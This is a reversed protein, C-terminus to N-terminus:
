FLISNIIFFKHANLLHKVTIKTQSKEVVVINKNEDLMGIDMDAYEPIFRDIPDDLSVLGKEIQRLIATATIPKTMSALRFITKGSIEGGKGDTGFFGNYVTKGDQKVLIAAGGIKGCSLDSAVRSDIRNKIQKKDLIIM